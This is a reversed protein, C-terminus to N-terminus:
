QADASQIGLDAMVKQLSTGRVGALRRLAEIRDAERREIEDTLQRLEEHEPNTLTESQRKAILTNYQSQLDAPIPENIALLLDSEEQSLRPAERDARLALVKEVFGSLEAPSLQQVAQLLEDPSLIAM